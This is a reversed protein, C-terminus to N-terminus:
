LKGAEEFAKNASKNTVYSLDSYGSVSYGLIQSLQMRDEAPFEMAAIRNLDLAGIDFLYEIIKNPKFKVVDNEDRYVPQMPHQPNVM